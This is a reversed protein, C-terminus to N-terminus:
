NTTTHAPPVARVLEFTQGIESMAAWCATSDYEPHFDFGGKWLRAIVLLGKHGGSLDRLQSGVGILHLPITEDVGTGDCSPCPRTTVAGMGDEEPVDLEAFVQKRGGCATCTADFSCPDETMWASGESFDKDFHQPFEPRHADVMCVLKRGDATLYRLNCTM